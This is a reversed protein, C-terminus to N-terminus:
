GVDPDFARIIARVEARFSGSFGFSFLVRHLWISFVDHGRNSGVVDQGSVLGCFVKADSAGIKVGCALLTRRKHLDAAQDPIAEGIDLTPKGVM